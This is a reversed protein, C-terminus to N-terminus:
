FGPERTLLKVFIPNIEVGTIYHFGFVAASLIDKGGGVGIIAARERGPLHYALSTIDYKLYSADQVNGTFRYAYTAADGDINMLRQDVVTNDRQFRPSPGWLFPTQTVTPYVAIRSFTNWERFIHSKGGEFRGKAVLPQFGYVSLGNGIACTGLVVLVTIRHRFVTDLAPKISPAT